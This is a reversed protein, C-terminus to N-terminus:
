KRTKFEVLHPKLRIGKQNRFGNTVLFQYRKNPQLEVEYTLSKRDDSWGVIRVFKYIYGEGLPGYDFGRFNTDMPESFTVTIQCLGPKVSKSGNKFPNIFVVTPREKEYDKSLEELPKPLLRTIDVIREVEKEDKYDLEILEKIAKKKDESLNYYRECIEYGVFYGLDRTKLENRNEGWLWNYTINMLFLDAVFQKIVKDHNAKGFKIAPSNSQKGTAKSSIFEAVGEYLCMSLLNEVLAKQQTHVYEHTCLLAINKKPNYEKYFPQRWAPLEDIITTSDALAM